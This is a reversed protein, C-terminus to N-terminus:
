ETKRGSSIIDACKHCESCHIEHIDDCTLGWERLAILVPALSIGMPTITYEVRLINDPYEKRMILGDQELERLQQTLVKASIQPIERQIEGYRSPGQSLAKIILIKWKGSILSLTSEIPCAKSKIEM